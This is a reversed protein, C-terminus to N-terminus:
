NVTSTTKYKIFRALNTKATLIIPMQPDIERRQSAIKHKLQPLFSRLKEMLGIEKVICDVEDEGFIDMIADLAECSVWLNDERNCVEMLFNGIGKLQTCFIQLNRLLLCGLNGIIRISNAKIQTEKGNRVLDFLRELDELPLQELQNFKIEILKKIVAAMAATSAEIVEADLNKTQFIVKGLELWITYLKMGGGLGEADISSVLNNFCLLARSQLKLVISLLQRGNETIKLQNITEEAPLATRSLVLNVLNSSVVAGVVEPSINIVAQSSDDQDMPEVDDFSNEESADSCDADEWKDGDDEACCINTLLELALQQASLMRELSIVSTDNPLMIDDIRAAMVKLLVYSDFGLTEVLLKMFNTLFAASCNTLQGYNRNLIIGAALNRLLVGSSTSGQSSFLNDVMEENTPKKLITIAESNDETITQLCYAVAIVINEGYQEVNLCLILDNLIGERNLVKVARSSSECLNLLLYVSEIFTEVLLNSKEESVKGRQWGSAFRNKFLYVLSTMVDQTVMEECAEHSATSLKRFVSVASYRVGANDDTLLPGIIKIIDLELISPIAQPKDILTILTCCACEKDKGKRSQLKEVVGELSKIITMKPTVQKSYAGNLGRVLSDVAVHEDGLELNEVDSIGKITSLGTPTSKIKGKRNHKLKGM